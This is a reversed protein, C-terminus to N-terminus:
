CGLVKLKYEREFKKNFDTFAELQLFFQEYSCSTMDLSDPYRKNLASYTVKKDTIEEIKYHLCNENDRVIDFTDGVKLESVIKKIEEKRLKKLKKLNQEQKKLEKDIEFINM